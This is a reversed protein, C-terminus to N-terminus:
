VRNQATKARNDSILGGKKGAKEICSARVRLLLGDGALVTAIKERSYYEVLLGVHYNGMAGYHFVEEDVWYRIVDGAKM